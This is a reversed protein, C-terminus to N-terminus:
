ADNYLDLLMLYLQKSFPLSEVKSKVGSLTADIAQSKIEKEDTEADAIQKEIKDKQSANIVGQGISVVGSGLIGVTGVAGVIVVCAMKVPSGLIELTTAGIKEATSADDKSQKWIDHTNKASDAVIAFPVCLTAIGMLAAGGVAKGARVFGELPTKPINKLYKINERHRQQM